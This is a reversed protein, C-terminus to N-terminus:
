NLTEKPELCISCRHMGPHAMKYVPCSTQMTTVHQVWCSPCFVTHCWSCQSKETKGTIGSFWLFIGCTSCRETPSSPIEEEMHEKWCAQCFTEHCSPCQKKTDVGNVRWGCGACREVAEQNPMEEKKNHAQWCEQSCFPKLISYVVSTGIAKGCRTCKQEEFIKWKKAQERKAQLRECTPKHEYACTGGCYYENCQPCFRWYSNQPETAKCEACIPM